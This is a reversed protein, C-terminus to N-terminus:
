LASVQGPAPESDQDFTTVYAFGAAAALRFGGNLAEGLGRNRGMDIIHTEGDIETSPTIAERGGGNDMVYVAGCEQALVGILRSIQFSNPGFAVIIAAIRSDM